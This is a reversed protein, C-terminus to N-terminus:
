ASPTMTGETDNVSDGTGQISLLEIHGALYAM